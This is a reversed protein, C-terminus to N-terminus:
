PSALGIGEKNAFQLLHYYWSLYPQVTSSLSPNAACLTIM